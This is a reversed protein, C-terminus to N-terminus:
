IATNCEGAPPHEETYPDVLDSVLDHRNVNKLLDVLPNVNAHSFAGIEMLYRLTDLAMPTREAPLKHIFVIRSVEEPRLHASIDSLLKRFAPQRGETSSQAQTIAQFASCSGGPGAMVVQLLLAAIRYM